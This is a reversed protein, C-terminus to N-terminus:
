VSSPLIEREETRPFLGKLHFKRKAKFLTKLMRKTKWKTVQLPKVDTSILNSTSSAVKELDVQQVNKVNKEFDRFMSELDFIVDKNIVLKKM